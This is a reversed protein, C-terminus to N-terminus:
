EVTAAPIEEAETPTPTTEPTVVQEEEIM